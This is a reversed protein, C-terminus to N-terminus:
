NAYYQINLNHFVAKHLSTGDSRLSIKCWPNRMRNRSNHGRPIQVRWIRFKKQLNTDGQWHWHNSFVKNREVYRCLDKEGTNQYEDSVQITDFTEDAQYLGTTDFMDM